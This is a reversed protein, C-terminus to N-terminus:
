QTALHITVVELGIQYRGDMNEFAPDGEVDTRPDLSAGGIM